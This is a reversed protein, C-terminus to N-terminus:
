RRQQADFELMARIREETEPHTSILELVKPEEEKEKKGKASSRHANELKRLIDALRKAHMGNENLMVAAYHDARREFDRSYSTQLLLTPAAAILSSIDGFYWSLALAVASGQLLQRLPHREAVHGSEHALVALIEEDNGALAILQDTIVVTGGPLAFANAGIAESDRFELPYPPLNRGKRLKTFQAQLAQRRKASLHSPKLLDGELGRLTQVDLIHATSYSIRNAAVEAAWPLGWRYAAFAFSVFLVVALVAYRWGAELRSVFSRPRHGAATLLAEFATHDSVECHGGGAFHLLRPASGLKESIRTSALTEDRAVDDGRVIFRGDAAELTVSHRRANQGDYYYARVGGM